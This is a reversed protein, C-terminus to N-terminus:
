LISNDDRAVTPLTAIEKKIRCSIAEDDRTRPPSRAIVLFSSGGGKRRPYCM